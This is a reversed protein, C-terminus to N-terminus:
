VWRMKFAFATDPDSFWWRYVVIGNTVTPETTVDYEGPQAELWPLIDTRSGRPAEHEVMTWQARLEYIELFSRYDTRQTAM